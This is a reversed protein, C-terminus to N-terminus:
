PLLVVSGIKHGTDGLVHARAAEALPMTASVHPTLRGEAAWAVLQALDEARELAVGSRVQRLFLGGLMQWLDAAVLGLRGGGTLFRRDPLRASGTTDLIVDWRRGTKRWDTSRYDIPVAGMRALLDTNSTVATVQGGLIPAIQTAALGVAGSAGIVLVQEGPRLALKDRLYQLATTGGFVLAAAQPWDLGAPKKTIAGTAPLLLYEAHAGMRAGPMAIVADGVAWQTVGAGLATVEGALDTGLVPRRPGRLGIALRALWAMGRPFRAARIRLDAASVTTARVRVLIEGPGPTPTPINEQTLVSPPGYRRALIAKM